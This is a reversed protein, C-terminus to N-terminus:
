GREAGVKALAEDASRCLGAGIYRAVNPVARIQKLANEMDERKIRESHWRNFYEASERELVQLRSETTSTFTGEIGDAWHIAVMAAGQLEQGHYKIAESASLAMEHGTFAMDEALARLAKAIEDDTMKKGKLTVRVWV